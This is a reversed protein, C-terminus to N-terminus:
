ATDCNLQEMDISHWWQATKCQIFKRKEGYGLNPIGTPMPKTGIIMLQCM